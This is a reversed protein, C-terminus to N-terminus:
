KISFKKETEGLARDLGDILEDVEKRTTVLPPAIVIINRIRTLINSKRLQQALEMNFPDVTEFSEKTKKNKVLELATMLGKGRVDGVTPHSRLSELASLLYSGVEASNEVLKDREMIRINTSAAVCSVPHANWTAGHQFTEAWGPKFKDRVHKRVIVAAMPLYASTMGKAVTMLDPVTNYHGNCAFWEGTRGFGCIVEDMILLIGYKDCIARVMPWYELPPPIVGPAGSITEGMVAAVTDPDESLIQREVDTACLLNCSPYSLDYECRYCFPAASHRIGPTFPEFYKRNFFSPGTIGHPGSGVGHYARKKSIIKYRKPYGALYQYQKSMMWATDVADSGTTTFYVYEMDGPALSALKSALKIAPVTPYEWTNVYCLKQMQAYVADAIEKQGHGANVNWLGSMLDFYNNGDVDTIHTGKAQDMIVLMEPNVMNPDWIKAHMWFHDQAEKILAHKEEKSIPSM